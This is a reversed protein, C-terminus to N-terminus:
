FELNLDESLTALRQMAAESTQQQQAMYRQVEEFEIRRHRNVKKCKIRGSEIEKVVFPRSVNLLAAAEQTSLEHRQPLLMVPQRQAMRKLVEAFLRLAQPPLSLVPADTTVGREDLLAIRPAASHDLAASICRLAVKAMEAEAENAIPDLVDPAKM